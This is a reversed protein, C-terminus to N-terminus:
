RTLRVSRRYRQLWARLESAAAREIALAPHPIPRGKDDAILAGERDIRSQADRHRAVATCYAELAAREIGDAIKPTMDATFERWAEQAAASLHSPAEIM